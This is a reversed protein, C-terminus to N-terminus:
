GLAEHVDDGAMARAIVSRSGTSGRPDCRDHGHKARAIAACRASWTRDDRWGLAAMAPVLHACRARSAREDASDLTLPVSPLSRGARSSGSAVGDGSTTASSFLG